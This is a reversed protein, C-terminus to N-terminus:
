GSVRHLYSEAEEAPVPRSYLYGQMLDCGISSLLEKQQDTEVGEAVTHLGLGKSMAVIARIISEDNSDTVLDMVFSRDIKLADLPFRKLYNMSSYGTGFDDVSLKVGVEKLARLKVGTEELSRMIVRETLELELLGPDLGFASLEEKILKVLDKDVFQRASVNVAVPVPDYGQDKWARLQKCAQHIVWAGIETIVGTEEAIPIFENPPVMDRGEPWWRLLAEFGTLRGSDLSIQPQYHLQFENNKVAHNLRAELDVRKNAWDNMEESFFRFCGGGSDKAYGLAIDANKILLDQEQADDPFMSIGISASFFIEQQMVSLPQALVESLRQAFRAVGDARDVGRILLMFEDGGPRALSYSLDDMAHVKAALDCERMCSAIRGAVEKILQDGAKYGLSDNIRKFRDLDLLLVAARTGDRKAAALLRGAYAKFLERNPLGTLSDFNALQFIHEETRKRETIDQVVHRVREVKGPEAPLAQGQSVVYREEGDPRVIRHELVYSEGKGVAASVANSFLRQEDPHVAELFTAFSAECSQPTLGLIEYVQESWEAQNNVIDWEWHGLNAIRQSELLKAENEQLSRFAERARLVFRLRQRLIAWNIPKTVFDTAGVEYAKEISDADNLGTVMILTASEGGPLARIKRAATFGDMLPMELDLLVIDYTQQRFLEVAEAGDGAEHLDLDLQGLASIALLRVMADDDVILVRPLTTVTTQKKMM